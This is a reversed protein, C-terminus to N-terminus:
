EHIFYTDTEEGDDIMRVEITELAELVTIFSSFELKCSHYANFREHLESRTINLKDIDLLQERHILQALLLVDEPPSSSEPLTWRFDQREECDIPDYVVTGSVQSSTVSAFEIAQAGLAGLFSHLFTIRKDM